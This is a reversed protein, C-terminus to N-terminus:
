HFLTPQQSHHLRYWAVAASFFITMLSNSRMANQDQEYGGGGLLFTMEVPWGITASCAIICYCYIPQLRRAFPSFDNSILSNVFM